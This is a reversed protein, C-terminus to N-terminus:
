DGMMLLMVWALATGGCFLIWSWYLRTGEVDFGFVALNGGLAGGSGLFLALILTLVAALPIAKFLAIM